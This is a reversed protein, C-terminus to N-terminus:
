NEDDTTSAGSIKNFSELLASWRALGSLTIASLRLYNCAPMHLKSKLIVTSKRKNPRLGVSKGINRTM